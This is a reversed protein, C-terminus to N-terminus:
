IMGLERKQLVLVIEANYVYAHLLAQSIDKVCVDCLLAVDLQCRTCVTDLDHLTRM